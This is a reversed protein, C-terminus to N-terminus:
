RYLLMFQFIALMFYNPVLSCYENVSLFCYSQVLRALLMLTKKVLVVHFYMVCEFEFIKNEKLLFLDLVNHM